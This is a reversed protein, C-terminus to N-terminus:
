DKIKDNNASHAVGQFWSGACGEVPYHGVRESGLLRSCKAPHWGHWRRKMIFTVHSSRLGSHFSMELKWGSLECKCLQRKRGSLLSIVLYFELLNINNEQLFIWELLLHPLGKFNIHIIKRQRTEQSRFQIESPTKQHGTRVQLRADWRMLQPEAWPWATAGATCNVSPWTVPSAGSWRGLMGLM